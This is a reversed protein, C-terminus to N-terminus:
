WIRWRYVSADCLSMFWDFLTDLRPKRILFRGDWSLSNRSIGSWWGGSGFRTFETYSLYSETFSGWMSLAIIEFLRGKRWLLACDLIISRIKEAFDWFQYKYSKLKKKHWLEDLRKKVNEEYLSYKSVLDVDVSFCYNLIKQRNM